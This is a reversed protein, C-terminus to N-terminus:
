RKAWCATSTEGTGMSESGCRLRYHYTSDRAYGQYFM